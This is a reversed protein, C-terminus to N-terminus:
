SLALLIALVFVNLPEPEDSSVSSVWFISEIRDPGPVAFDGKKAEACKNSSPRRDWYKGM